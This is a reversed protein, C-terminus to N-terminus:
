KISYSTIELSESYELTDNDYIKNEYFILGIGKSFCNTQSRVLKNDKYFIKRIGQIDKFYVNRVNLSDQYFYELSYDITTKYSIRKKSPVFYIEYVQKAKDIDLYFGPISITKAEYTGSDCQIFGRGRGEFDYYCKINDSIILSDVSFLKMNKYAHLTRSYPKNNFENPPNNKAYYVWNNDQNIPFYVNKDNPKIKEEEPEECSLLSLVVFLLLLNRM